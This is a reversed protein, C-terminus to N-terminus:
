HSEDHKKKYRSVVKAIRAAVEAENGVGSIRRFEYKTKFFSVVRAIQEKYYRRRNKLAMMASRLTSRELEYDAISKIESLEVPKM